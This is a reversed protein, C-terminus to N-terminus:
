RYKEAIHITFNKFLQGEDYSNNKLSDILKLFTDTEVDTMKDAIEDVGIINEFQEMITTPGYDKLNFVDNIELNKFFDNNFTILDSLKSVEERVMILEAGGLKSIVSETVDKLGSESELEPEAKPETKVELEKDPEVEPGSEIEEGPLSDEGGVIEEEKTISETMEEPSTEGEGVIEEEGGTSDIDEPREVFNTDQNSLNGPELGDGQEVNIIFEGAENQDISIINGEFVKDTVNDMRNVSERTMNEAWARLASPDNVDGEFGLDIANNMFLQRASRWISDHQGPKLGENSIAKSLLGKEKLEEFSAPGDESEIEPETGGETAGEGPETEEGPGPEIEEGPGPETEEGPGPEIEEGPGPEIEEGTEPVTGEGTEPVTGEGSLIEDLGGIGLLEKAEALLGGAVVFGGAMIAGNLMKERMIKRRNASLKQDTIKEYNNLAKEVRENVNVEKMEGDTDQIFYSEEELSDYKNREAIILMEANGLTQYLNLLNKTKEKDSGYNVLDNSIKERSFKIRNDLMKLTVLKKDIKEGHYKIILKDLKKRLGDALETKKDIRETSFQNVKNDISQFNRLAAQYEENNELEESIIRKGEEDEKINENDYFSQLKKYAEARAKFLPHNKEHLKRSKDQDSGRFQKIAMSRGRLAGVGMAAPIIAIAGIISGALMRAGYGAAMYGSKDTFYGALRAWKGKSMKEWDKEIEPTSNITKLVSIQLDIKNVENAMELDEGMLIDEKAKNYNQYAKKYQKKQESSAYKENYNEPIESWQNAFYNFVEFAEKKESKESEKKNIDIFDFTSVGNMTEEKIEMQSILSTLNEINTKHKEIGLSKQSEKAQDEQINKYWFNKLAPIIKSFFGKKGKFAQAQKSAVESKVSDLSMVLIQKAILLQAGPNLKEFGKISKLDDPSINYEAFADVVEQNLKEEEEPSVSEKEEEEPSVSEKEEEEPSVSEKEEKEPSVSEKEEEEPSVSEKEEEEPSVSEKEEQIDDKSERIYKVYIDDEKEIVNIITLRDYDSFGVWGKKPFENGYKDKFCDIIKGYKDEIIDETKVAKDIKEESEKVIDEREKDAENPKSIDKKDSMEEEIKQHESITKKIKDKTKKAKKKIKESADEPGKPKEKKEGASLGGEALNAKNFDEKM